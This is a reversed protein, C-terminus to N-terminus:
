PLKPLAPLDLPVVSTVPPIAVTVTVPPLPLPAIPPIQVQVPLLVPTEVRVTAPPAPAPAVTLHATPVSAPAPAPAPSPTAAPAAGAGTGPQAGPFTNARGSTRATPAAPQRPRHAAVSAPRAAAPSPAAAPARLAAPAVPKTFTPTRTPENRPAPEAATVGAAVVMTAAGVKLAAGGFLSKAWALLSGVDLGARTRTRDLERALARRARFLLTEVASETTELEAAIERYSLGQWERLLIARRQNDTLQALADALGDLEDNASSPEVVAERLEGDNSVVEFRSRRWAKRRREHCVNEAIKYLWAAEAHPEVGTRLSRYANLFTQQVADEAEEQSSLRRRCYGLIRRSYREYLLGARAAEVTATSEPVSPAASM